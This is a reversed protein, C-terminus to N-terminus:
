RRVKVSRWKSWNGAGDQVRLFVRSGTVRVIRSRAYAMAKGPKAKSSTVQMFGVSSLNDKAKARVRVPQGKAKANEASAALRTATADQITPPTLDLIIDDTYTKTEDIGSGSFRVYVVKTYLAKVLDDLQWDYTPALDRTATTAARFGGDNSIRAKTAFPPWVVSLTVNRDNTYPSADNITLGPEGSPPSAYATVTKTATASRGAATTVRVRVDRAGPSSYSTSVSGNSSSREFAGDGDLDWEYSAVSGVGVTADATFRVDAGTLPRDTEVGLGVEPTLIDYVKIRNAVNQAAYLKGGAGVVFGGICGDPHFGPAKDFSNILSGSASYVLFRSGYGCGEEAYVRGVSDVAIFYNGARAPLTAFTGEVSGAASVAAIRHASWDYVYLGGGPRIALGASVAEPMSWTATLAGTGADFVRIERDNIASVFLSSGDTAVYGGSALTYRWLRTAGDLTYKALDNERVSAVYVGTADVAVAVPSAHGWTRILDGDATFQAVRNADRDAVYVDGSGAVTVGYPGNLVGGGFSSLPVASALAPGFVCILALVLTRVRNMKM